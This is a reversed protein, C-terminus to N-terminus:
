YQWPSCMFCQSKIQKIYVPQVHYHQYVSSIAFIEIELKIVLVLIQKQDKEILLPSLFVEM